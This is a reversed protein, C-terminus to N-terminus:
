LPDYAGYIAAIAELDYPQVSDIKEYSMVSNFKDRDDFEHDLGLWHGMEHVVTTKLLRKEEAPFGKYHKEFSNKFIMIDAGLIRQSTNDLIPMTVGAVFSKSFVSAEYGDVLMICNVNVDSFPKNQPELNLEFKKQGVKGNRAWENVYSLLEVDQANLSGCVSLKLDQEWTTKIGEGLLYNFKPNVEELAFLDKSPKNFFMSIVQTGYPFGDLKMLFSMQTKQENVSYHLVKVPSENLAVLGIRGEIKHWKLVFERNDSALSYSDESTKEFFWPIKADMKKKQNRTAAEQGEELNTKETVEERPTWQRFTVVSGLHFGDFDELMEATFFSQANLNTGTVLLMPDGHTLVVHGIEEPAKKEGGRKKQGCGSVLALTLGFLIIYCSKHLNLM